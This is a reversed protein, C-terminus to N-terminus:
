IFNRLSLAYGVTEDNTNYMNVSIELVGKFFTMSSSFGAYVDWEGGDFSGLIRRHRADGGGFVEPITKLGKSIMKLEKMDPERFFKIIKDWERWAYQKENENLHDISYEWYSKNRNLHTLAQSFLNKMDGIFPHHISVDGYENTAIQLIWGDVIQPKFGWNVFSLPENKMVRVM